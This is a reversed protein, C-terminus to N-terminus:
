TQFDYADRGFLLLFFLVLSVGVVSIIVPWHVPITVSSRRISIALVAVGVFWIGAVTLPEYLRKPISMHSM